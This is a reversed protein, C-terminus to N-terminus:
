ILGSHAGPDEGDPSPHASKGLDGVDAAYRRASYWAHPRARTWERALTTKGYGAPAVLLIIRASTEDLLVEEHGPPLSYRREQAPAAEDEVELIASMAQQELWERAYREHIGAAAALGAPTSPGREALARYLGLRDGLHVTFVDMTAVASQFLREVFADRLEVTSTM